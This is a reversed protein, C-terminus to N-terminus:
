TIYAAFKLNQMNWEYVFKAAKASLVASICFAANSPIFMAGDALWAPSAYVIGAILGKIFLTLAVTLSVCAAIAAATYLAKGALKQGFYGLVSTVLTVFFGAIVPM